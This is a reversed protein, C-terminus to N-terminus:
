QSKVVSGTSRSNDEVGICGGEEAGLFEVITRYSLISNFNQLLSYLDRIEDMTRGHPPCRWDCISDWYGSICKWRDVLM